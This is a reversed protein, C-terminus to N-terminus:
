HSFPKCYASFPVQMSSWTCKGVLRALLKERADLMLLLNRETKQLLLLCCRMSPGVVPVPFSFHLVKLSDLSWAFAVATHNEMPSVVLFFFAYSNVSLIICTIITDTFVSVDKRENVHM